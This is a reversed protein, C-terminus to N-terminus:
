KEGKIRGRYMEQVASELLGDVEEDSLSITGTAILTALGHTFIWVKVHFERQEEMSLHTVKTGAKVVTEGVGDMLFDKAKLATKQMFLAKFFEPYDKAFRIYSLGMKKYAGEEDIDIAMYEKFIDYIAKYLEKVLEDMSGFNNFIPNVSSGLKRALSRANISAFGEEKVLDKAVELIDEKKFKKVPPM